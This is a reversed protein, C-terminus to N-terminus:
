RIAKIKRLPIKQTGGGFLGCVNVIEGCGGLNVKKITFTNGASLKKLGDRGFFDTKLTATKGILKEANEKKWNM